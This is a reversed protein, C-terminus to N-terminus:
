QYRIASNATVVTPLVLKSWPAIPKFSAKASMTAYVGATDGDACSAGSTSAVLTGSSTPCEYVACVPVPSASVTLSPTAATIAATIGSTTCSGGSGYVYLAGAHAAARVQMATYTLQGVDFLGM